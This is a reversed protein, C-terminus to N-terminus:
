KIEVGLASDLDGVNYSDLRRTVGDQDKCFSSPSPPDQITIANSDAGAVLLDPLQYSCTLTHKPGPKSFTM